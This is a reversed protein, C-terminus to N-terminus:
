AYFFSLNEPSLQITMRMMCRNPRIGGCYKGIYRIKPYRSQAGCSEHKDACQGDYEYAAVRLALPDGEPLHQRCRRCAPEPDQPKRQREDACVSERLFVAAPVVKYYADKYILIFFINIFAQAHLANQM